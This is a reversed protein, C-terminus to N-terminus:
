LETVECTADYRKVGDAPKADKIDLGKTFRVAAGPSTTGIMRGYKQVASTLAFGCEDWLINISNGSGLTTNSSSGKSAFALIGVTVRSAGVPIAIPVEYDVWSASSSTVATPYIQAGVDFTFFPQTTFTAGTPLTASALVKASFLYADGPSVSLSPALIAVGQGSVDLPATSGLSLGLAYSGDFASPSIVPATVWQHTTPQISWGDLFLDGFQDHEFSEFSGNSLLNPLYFADAGGRM